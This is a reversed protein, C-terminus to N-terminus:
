DHKAAERIKNEAAKIVDYVTSLGCGYKDALYQKVVTKSAEPNATLELYDAWIQANRENRRRKVATIMTRTTTM